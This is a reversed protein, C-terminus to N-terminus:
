TSSYELGTGISLKPLLAFYANIRVSLFFSFSYFTKKQRKRHSLKEQGTSSILPPPHYLTSFSPSGGAEFLFTRWLRPLFDKGWRPYFDPPPFARQFVIKKPSFFFERRKKQTHTHLSLFLSFLNESKGEKKLGSGVEPQISIKKKKRQTKRRM